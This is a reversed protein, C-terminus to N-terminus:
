VHRHTLTSRTLPTQCSTQCKSYKGYPSGYPGLCPTETDPDRQGSFHWAREGGCVCQVPLTNDRGRAEVKRVGQHPRRMGMVLVGGLM